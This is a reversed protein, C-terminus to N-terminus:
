TGTIPRSCGSTSGPECVWPLIIAINLFTKPIPRPRLSPVSWQHVKSTIAFMIQVDTDIDSLTLGIIEKYGEHAYLNRRKRMATLNDFEDSTIVNLTVLRPGCFEFTKFATDCAKLFHNIASPDHEQLYEYMKARFCLAMAEFNVTYLGIAMLGQAISNELKNAAM